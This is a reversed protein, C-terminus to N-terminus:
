VQPNGKKGDTQGYNIDPNAQLTLCKCEHIGHSAFHTFDSRVDIKDRSATLLCVFRLSVARDIRRSRVARSEM